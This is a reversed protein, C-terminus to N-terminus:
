PGQSGPHDHDYVGLCYQGWAGAPNRPDDGLLASPSGTESQGDDLGLLAHSEEHAVVLLVLRLNNGVFIIPDLFIVGHALWSKPTMPGFAALADQPSMYEGGYEQGPPPTTLEQWLASVQLRMSADTGFEECSQVGTAKLGKIAGNVLNCQQVSFNACGQNIAGYMEAYWHSPQDIISIAYGAIWPCSGDAEPIYDGNANWCQGSPDTAGVPDNGAYAYQNSGASQGIPDESIFRALQPDYYRARNYYLHTEPDYERGAFKLVNTATELSDELGGWPNYRYRNKIKGTSDIVAVIGPTGIGSLYYYTGSVEKVSHPNDVGPYYRYIKQAITTNSSDVEAMLQSGAYIYRLDFGTRKSVRRGQGDYDFSVKVGNTVVSDLQGISNWYYYQDFGTKSKHTLNGANDYTLTYGNFTTARNGPTLVADLDTRNNASDYTYSAQSVFTWGGSPTCHEGDQGHPDPVCILSDASLSDAYTTLRGTSDYAFFRVTDNMSGLPGIAQQVVRDLTDRALFEDLTDLSTRSYSLSIPQHTQSYGVLVSDNGSTPLKWSTLLGDAAYHFFTNAVGGTITSMESLRLDADYTYSLSDWTTTGKKLVTSRLLGNADSTSTVTYSQGAQKTFATHTLGTVDTKSTDISAANSDAQFLGNPDYGYKTVRGDALTLTVIRGLSDYAMSTAKANRDRHKTVLGAASYFFSDTRASLTHNTDANIQTLLWGLPNYTYQYTQGKADTISRVRSLSDYAYTVHVGNPGRSTRTRNLSDLSVTFVAGGPMTTSDARGYRDYRYTTVRNVATVTETNKFGTTYYAVSTVHGSPDTTQTLRGHADHTYKTVSDHGTGGVKESDAWTKATNLYITDPVTNGGVGTVLENTADFKYSVTAGSLSDTTKTTVAGSWVASSLQVLQGHSTSVVATARSDNDLTVTTVEQAGVDETVTPNGFADVKYRVSDVSPASVLAWVSDSIVRTAPTASSGTHSVTDILEAALTSRFKTGLRKTVGDALVAPTSDSAMTSAFDYRYLWTNGGRDTVQTLRHHTDYTGSFTTTNTPDKITTLNGSGDVTFHSVRGGPDTITSLKSSAYALTMSDGIPDIVAALLNSGNYHYQTSDGFRNKATLLYGTPSFTLITGNPSTRHYSTVTGGSLVTTLTTFDGLPSVWPSTKTPRTFLLISGTGDTIALSLSDSTFILHQLGAIGWGAGFPSSQENDILITTPVSTQTVTGAYSGSTWRSKIITTDYYIGTALATSIQGALRKTSTDTSSQAFYLETTGNTFTENVGGRVASLSLQQALEFSADKVDVAVVGLPYAMGSSYVLSVSRPVDLSTYAPPAYGATVNFCNTACLATPRNYGNHPSSLVVPPLPVPVNVTVTATDGGIGHLPLASLTVPGSTGSGMTTVSVNATGSAGAALAMPSSTVLTCTLSAGCTKALNVTDAVNGLNKVTFSQTYTTDPPMEITTGKPTVKIPNLKITDTAQIEVNGDANVVAVGTGSAPGATFILKVQKSRGVKVTDLAPTVSCASLIGPKTCFVSLIDDMSGENDIEFLATDTSGVYVTNSLACPTITEFTGCLSLLHAAGALPRLQLNSEQSLRKITLPPHGSITAARLGLTRWALGGVVSVLVAVLLVSFRSGTRM